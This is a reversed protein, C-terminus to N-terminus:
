CAIYALRYACGALRMPVEAVSATTQMAMTNILFHMNATGQTFYGLFELDRIVRPAPILSFTSGTHYMDDNLPIPLPLNSIGTKSLMSLLSM